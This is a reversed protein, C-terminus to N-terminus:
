LLYKSKRVHLSQYMLAVNIEIKNHAFQNFCEFMGYLPYCEIINLPIVSFGIASLYVISNFLSGDSVDQPNM